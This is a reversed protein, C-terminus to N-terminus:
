LSMHEFVQWGLVRPQWPIQAATPLSPLCTDAINIVYGHLGHIYLSVM